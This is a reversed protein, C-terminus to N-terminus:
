LQSFVRALHEAKNQREQTNQENRLDDGVGVPIQLGLYGALDTMGRM